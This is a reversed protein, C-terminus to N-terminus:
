NLSGQLRNREDAVRVGLATLAAVARNYAIVAQQEARQNALSDVGVTAVSLEHEARLSANVDKTRIASLLSGLAADLGALRTRQADYLPKEVAPPTLRGLRARVREITARYAGLVAAIRPTSRLGELQAQADTNAKRLPQLVAAFAPDFLALTHIEGALSAERSILELLLKHLQAAQPPPDAAALQRRLRGLTAQAGALRRVTAPQLRGHGFESLAEQVAGVPVRMKAEAANVRGVYATVQDRPSPARHGGCASLVAAAGLLAIWRM